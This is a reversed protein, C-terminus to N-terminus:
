ISNMVVAIFSEYIICLKKMGFNYTFKLVKQQRRLVGVIIVSASQRALCTFMM